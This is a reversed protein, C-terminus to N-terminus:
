FLTRILRMVIDIELLWLNKNLAIFWKQYLPAPFTAGGGAINKTTKGSSCAVLVPTLALATLAIAKM